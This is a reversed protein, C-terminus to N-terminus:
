NTFRLSRLDIDVSSSLFWVDGFMVETINTYNFASCSVLASVTTDFCELPTRLDVTYTALGPQATVMYSATSTSAVLRFDFVGQGGTVVAAADFVAYRLTSLDIPAPQISAIMGVGDSTPGTGSVRVGATSSAGVWNVM